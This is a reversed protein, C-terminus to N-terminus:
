ALDVVNMVSSREQGQGLGSRSGRRSGGSVSTSPSALGSVVTSSSLLSQDYGRRTTFSNGSVSGKDDEATHPERLNAWRGGQVAPTISRAMYEELKPKRLGVGRIVSSMVDLCEVVWGLFAAHRRSVELTWRYEGLRCRYFEEEERTQATIRLLMGFAVILAFNTRAAAPWFARLNNPRLRNVFDMASILRTKAASRCIHILYDDTHNPNISRIICRHLTIETAFYALHLGGNAATSTSTTPATDIPNLSSDMKLEPPLNAFWNKLRLQIPKARELIIRTSQDGAHSFDQTARLTYFTDLIDSLITTLTILCSFLLPGAHTPPDNSNPGKSYCNEFDDLSLEQVTWNQTFIHSPQGHTLACWKDQVYLAWALRKRLGKEWSEIRWTSCDQHLGIDFAATVLQSILRPSFLASKQSLLLGAQIAALHPRVFSDNLLKLATSELRAADPKRLTQIGPGPDLWKLSVLYISALLVPPVSRSQYLSRFRDEMLVPFTPHINQFFKEILSPGFPTVLNEIAEVSISPLEPGAHPVDVMRMYTGDDSFKRIRSAALQGECNQDLPLYDLLLPELETTMGIYHTTLSPSGQCETQTFNHSQAELRGGLASVSEDAAHRKISENELTTTTEELKRKGLQSSLTFTCEQRHFNCSYCKNVLENMACRSKRKYCADCTASSGAGHPETVLGPNNALSASSSVSANSSSNRRNIAPSELAQHQEAPRDAPLSPKSQQQPQSAASRPRLVPSAQQQNITAAAAM